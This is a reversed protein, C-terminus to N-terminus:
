DQYTELIVCKFANQETEYTLSISFREELNNKQGPKVRLILCHEASSGFFCFFFDSQQSKGSQRKEKILTLGRETAKCPM